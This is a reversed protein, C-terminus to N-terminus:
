EAKGNANGKYIKKVLHPSNNVSAYIHELRRAKGNYSAYAKSKPISSDSM